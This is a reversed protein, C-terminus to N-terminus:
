DDHTVRNRDFAKVRLIKCEERVKLREPSSNWVAEDSDAAERRAAMAIELDDIVFGDGVEAGPTSVSGRLKNKFYPPIAAKVGDVVLFGSREFDCRYQDFFERGLGSSMAGFEPMVQWSKGSLPDVRKYRADDGSTRKKVVYGAAYSFAGAKADGFNCFGHGWLENFKESKYLKHDGSMKYHQVDPFDGLGVGFLIAHYHPRFTVDGYEAGLYFRLKKNGFFKRFRKLWLRYDVKNLSLDNPLHDDDYTLQAMLVDSHLLAECHMRVKWELVKDLRCGICGGCALTMPVTQCDAPAVRSFRGDRLRFGELPNYCAM